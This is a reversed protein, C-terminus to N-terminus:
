LEPFALNEEGGSYYRMLNRTRVATLVFIVTKQSTAGTTEFFVKSTSVAEMTLAVISAILFKSVDAL